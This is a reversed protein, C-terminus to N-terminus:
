QIYDQCCYSRSDQDLRYVLCNSNSTLHVSVVCISQSFASLSLFPHLILAAGTNCTAVYHQWQETQSYGPSCWAHAGFKSLEENPSSDANCIAESYRIAVSSSGTGSGQLDYCSGHSLCPLSLLEGQRWVRQAIQWNVNKLTHNLQLFQTLQNPERPTLIAIPQGWHPICMLSPVSPSTVPLVPYSVARFGQHPWKSVCEILIM